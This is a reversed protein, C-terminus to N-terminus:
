ISENKRNKKKYLYMFEFYYRNICIILARSEIEFYLIYASDNM